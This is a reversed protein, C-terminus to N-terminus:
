VTGALFQHCAIKMLLAVTRCRRVDLDVARRNRRFENFTFQESMLLSRKCRGDLLMFAFEFLGVSTCEKKILDAVHRERSLCFHESDKLLLLQRSYSAVLIDDHIDSYQSGGVLIKLIFNLFTM